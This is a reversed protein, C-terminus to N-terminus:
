EEYIGNQMITSKTLKESLVEWAKCSDPLFQLLMEKVHKLTTNSCCTYYNTIYFSKEIENNDLVIKLVLTGYSYLNLVTKNESNEKIYFAKKYFSKQKSNKSELYIKNMM